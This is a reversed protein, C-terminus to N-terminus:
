HYNEENNHSYFTSFEQYPVYSTQDDIQLQFPCASEIVSCIEQLVSIQDATFMSVVGFIVDSHQSNDSQSLKWILESICGNMTTCKENLASINKSLAQILLDNSKIIEIELQRQQPTVLPQAMLGQNKERKTKKPKSTTTKKNSKKNSDAKSTSKIPNSYVTSVVSGEVILKVQVRFLLDEHQSSLVTLKCEVNITNSTIKQVKYSLPKQAIYGVPRLNDVSYVLDCEIEGDIRHPSTITLNFISQKVVVCVDVNDIKETSSSTQRELLLSM